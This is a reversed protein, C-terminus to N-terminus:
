NYKQIKKLSGNKTYSKWTGVKKGNKYYGIERIKKKDKCKSNNFYFKFKKSDWLKQGCTTKNSYASYYSIYKGNKKKSKSLDYSTFKKVIGKLNIKECTIKKGKKECIRYITKNSGTLQIFYKYKSWKGIYDQLQPSPTRPVIKTNNKSYAFLNANLIIIALILKLIQKM